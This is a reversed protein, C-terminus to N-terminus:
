GTRDHGGFQGLRHGCCEALPNGSGPHQEGTGSGIDLITKPAVADIRNILDISPQTRESKFKLYLDPNWDSM